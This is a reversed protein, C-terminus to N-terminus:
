KFEKERTNQKKYTPKQNGKRNRWDVSSCRTKNEVKREIMKDIRLYVNVGVTTGGVIFGSM